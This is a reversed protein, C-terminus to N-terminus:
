ILHLDDLDEKGGSFYKKLIKDLEEELGEEMPAIHTYIDEAITKFAEVLTADFHTGSDQELIMMTKEFSFPEKYPRRSTLADFVDVIAFIRASIPIDDGALAEPYGNGTIQEHHGHVVELADSLWRSRAVIEIGHDVHTKMVRYEDEDLKGPKLLIDDRIGIKGVDHLFAGKILGRIERHSLGVVEALRVSIITVRYNHANTDSDRKAIASGLVQLTEMNAQMLSHSLRSLKNTLSMVLPYITAITLLVISLAILVARLLRGRLAARTTDSLVYFGEFWSHEMGEFNTLYTVVHVVLQGNFRILQFWDEGPRPFSPPSPKVTELLQRYPSNGQEQSSAQLKKDQDFFRLLIFHDGQLRQEGLGDIIQKMTQNLQATRQENSLSGIQNRTATILAANDAIRKALSRTFRDRELTYSIVAVLLAIIVGAIILRLLLTRQVYRKLNNQNMM